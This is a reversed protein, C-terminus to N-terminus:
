ALEFGEYGNAAVEDCKRRYGGVGEPALYPLFARPKGPINASMYWSNAGVMLTTNVVENVHAVWADQAAASAEITSQGAKRMAAICDTVWEVHQEISTPMNSLVSPSQPGTITFLNPFGAVSIGLYSHPGDVWEKDLTRGARGKLNLAKLPGTMADFGTAFVIIDFEYEKGGARIGKGTIEEIAGDTNADVLLVNDKNFTEYYNTDLPQRKTGYAYGKPILKEALAPAKVTKRIKRKIYDACIDNSEQNFFMDQYNGLWFAFGGADWMRDFEREREEPTAELVSKPIFYHEQGFFSERTRKIVGEYDAKRAKVVEPDVKGNRAPVCYNATRQFVTLQKAQQAIEPIAQVATAGTGIVGVRKNTFDVGEHPFRSTHYWKGKFSELGKIQPMNTTTLSGVAAIFYHAKVDDGKDFHVNWLKSKEDFEAGTVRTGFQIDRKLDHRKAVHELYRLIEPQEPYRETWEWEQLLQKDFTFGYIYADSDCRAGPYRNWYWTGGVSDGAEYVRAKLGLKDRLSKLMYMGSFGAGVIVADLTATTSAM